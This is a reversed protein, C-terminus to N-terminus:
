GFHKKESQAKYLNRFTKFVKKCKSGLVAHFPEFDTVNDAYHSMKGFISSLVAQLKTLRRMGARTLSPQLNQLATAPVFLVGALERGQLHRVREM